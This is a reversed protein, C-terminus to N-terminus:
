SWRSGRGSAPPRRDGAGRRALAAARAGARRVLESPPVRLLAPRRSRTSRTSRRALRDDDRRCASPCSGCCRASSPRSPWRRSRARLLARDRREPRAAAEHPDPVPEGQGRVRLGDPTQQVWRAVAAAHRAPLLDLQGRRHRVRRTTSSGAGRGAARPPYVGSAGTARLELGLLRHPDRACPAPHGRSPGRAEDGAASGNAASSRSRPPARPRRRARAPRRRRRVLQALARAPASASSVMSVSRTSASSSSARARAQARDRVIGDAGVVDVELRRRSARCGPRCCARRASRRSRRGRTRAAARARAGAARPRARAHALARQAVHSGAAPGRRRRRRRSARSRRSRAADALRDRARAAPKPISTTCVAREDPTGSSSSSSRASKTVSCQRERRLRAVQDVGRRERAHLRGGVEDVGRAAADDVLVRQAVRQLSPSIAPAASSTVSGSGSGRRGGAARRASGARRGACRSPSRAARARLIASSPPRCGARRARRAAGIGCGARSVTRTATTSMPVFEVRRSIASTARRRPRRSSSRRETTVRSPSPTSAVPAARRRAAAARAERREVVVRSAISRARSRACADGHHGGRHAVGGVAGLEGRATRSRKPSSARVSVPSSSARSVKRPAVAARAASASAAAPSRCRRRSSRARRRRARRPAAEVDRGLDADHAVGLAVECASGGRAPPARPARRRRARAHELRGHGRSTRALARPPSRRPRCRSRLARRDVELEVGVVGVCTSPWTSSARGRELSSSSRSAASGSASRRSIGPRCGSRAGVITAPTTM